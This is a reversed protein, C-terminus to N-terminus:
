LAQTIDRTMSYRLFEQSHQRRNHDPAASSQARENSYANSYANSWAAMELPRSQIPRLASLCDIKTVRSAASM